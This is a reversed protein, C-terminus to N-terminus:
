YIKCGKSLKVINEGLFFDFMKTFEQTRQPLIAMSHPTSDLLAAHCM